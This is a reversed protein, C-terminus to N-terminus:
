LNSGNVSHAQGNRYKGKGGSQFDDHEQPAIFVALFIVLVGAITGIVAKKNRFYSSFINWNLILHVTGAVAFAIGGWEHVAKLGPGKLHFLMVVGSLTVAGYLVVIFPSLWSKIKVQKM